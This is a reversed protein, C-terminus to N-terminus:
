DAHGPQGHDPRYVRCPVTEGDATPVRHQEPLVPADAGLGHASHTLRRVQNGGTTADPLGIDLLLADGPLQPSSISLAIRRSDPTWKPYALRPSSVTGVAPLPLDRIKRGTGAAEYLALESAGDDNREVLLVAGDPSLWGTLDATDDTVLWTLEKSALDYRAVAIFERDNSSSYILADSGPAWAVARNMAPADPPTVLLLQEGGAPITLDVLAVHDAAATVPSAVTLALWRGDPSIVAEHFMHDGLDIARESGDALDRIV